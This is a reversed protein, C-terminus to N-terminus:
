LQPFIFHLFPNLFTLFLHTLVFFDLNELFNFFDKFLINKVIVEKANAINKKKLIKWLQALEKTILKCKQLWVAQIIKEIIQNTNPATPSYKIMFFFSIFFIHYRGNIIM